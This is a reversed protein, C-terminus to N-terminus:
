KSAEASNRRSITRARYTSPAARSEEDGLAAILLDGDAFATARTALTITNVHEKTIVIPVSPKAILQVALQSVERELDM